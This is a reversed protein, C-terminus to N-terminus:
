QCSHDSKKKYTCTKNIYISFSFYILPLSSISATSNSLQTLIDDTTKDINNSRNLKNIIDNYRLRVKDLATICNNNLKFGLSTFYLKQPLILSTSPFISKSPYLTSKITQSIYSKFLLNKFM